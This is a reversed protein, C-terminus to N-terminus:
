SCVTGKTTLKTDEYAFHPKCDRGIHGTSIEQIVHQYSNLTRAELKANGGVQTDPCIM